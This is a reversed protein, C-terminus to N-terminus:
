SVELEFLLLRSGELEVEFIGPIDATFVITGLRGPEVDTFFDYGHVHVEEAVDSTVQIEVTSDIAVEVRDSEVQVDGGVYGAVIVVKGVDTTPPATTTTPTPTSATPSTTDPTPLTTAPALTTTTVAAVPPTTVATTAAGSDGCATATAALAALVAVWRKM